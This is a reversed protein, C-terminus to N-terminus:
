PTVLYSSVDELAFDLSTTNMPSPNEATALAVVHPSRNIVRQSANARCKSIKPEPLNSARGKGEYASLNAPLRGIQNQLATVQDHQLKSKSSKKNVNVQKLELRYLACADYDTLEYEYLHWEFQSDPQPDMYYSRKLGGLEKIIQKRSEHWGRGNYDPLSRQKRTGSEFARRPKDFFLWERVVEGHLVSIDFLEHANWPSKSTAAGECEPIGVSKHQSKASLASFLPGDKLDIGGPRVVPNQAIAGESVALSAHFASCYDRYWESGNAPRPCDWLACKPRLFAAPSSFMVPPFPTPSEDQSCGFGSFPIRPSFPEQMPFSPSRLQAQLSLSEDNCLPSAEAITTEARLLKEVMEEELIQEQIHVDNANYMEENGCYALHSQQQELIPKALCAALSSSADDDEETLQLLRKMDSSLESSSPSAVLLSTAPSVDHLEAKWERLMQNVQEELLAVDTGRNERRAQQLDCFIGQLDDVRDKAKAKFSQQKGGSGM